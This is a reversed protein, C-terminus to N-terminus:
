MKEWNAPDAPNGGKFRHGDEITGVAPAVPTVGTAPKYDPWLSRIQETTENIANKGSDLRIHAAIKASDISKKLQGNSMTQDFFSKWEQRDHLTGGVGSATASTALKALEGAIEQGFLESGESYAQGTAKKYRTLLENLFPIDSKGQEGQENIEKELQELNAMATMEFSVIKGQLIRQADREKGLSQAQRINEAITSEDLQPYRKKGEAIAMAMQNKGQGLSLGEKASFFRAASIEPNNSVFAKEKAEEAKYAGELMKVGDVQYKVADQMLGLEGNTKLALNKLEMDMMRPDNKYKDQINAIQNAYEKYKNMAVQYNTDFQEKALKVKEQNGQIQGEIAGNMASMAGNAHNMVSKGGLAGIVMLLGFMDSAKQPPIKFTETPMHQEPVAAIEKQMKAPEDVLYHKQIQQTGAIQEKNIEAERKLADKQAKMAQSIQGELKPTSVGVGAADLSSQPLGGLVAAKDAPNNIRLAEQPDISPDVTPVDM